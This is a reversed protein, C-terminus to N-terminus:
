FKYFNECVFNQSFVIESIQFFNKTIDAFKAANRVTQVFRFSDNCFATRSQFVNGPSGLVNGAARAHKAHFPGVRNIAGPMPHRLHDFQGAADVRQRTRARVGRADFPFLNQFPRRFNQDEGGASETKLLGECLDRQQFRPGAPRIKRRNATTFNIGHVRIRVEGAGARSDDFARLKQGAQDM